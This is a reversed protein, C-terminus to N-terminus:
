SPMKGSTLTRWRKPKSMSLGVDRHTGNSNLEKKPTKSFFPFVFRINEKQFKSMFKIMYDVEAEVCILLPGNGIPSNPGLTMFYNPYNNVALGM